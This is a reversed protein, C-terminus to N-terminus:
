SCLHYHRSKYYDRMKEIATNQIQRIRERSLHLEQAIEQQEKKKCDIGFYGTIILRERENLSTNLMDRFSQNWDEEDHMLEIDNKEQTCLQAEEETLDEDYGYIPTNLSECYADAKLVEMVRMASIGLEEAVEENTAYRQERQEISRQTAKIKGALTDLNHPLRITRGYQELADNIAQQIYRVAFTIFKYGLTEDFKHAAKILGLTGEAVLDSLEMGSNKYNSAVSVVFKINAEILENLAAEDGQHIRKALAIEEEQTLIRKKAISKFILKMTEDSATYTNRKKM